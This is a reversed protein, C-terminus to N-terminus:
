LLDDDELEDLVKKDLTDIPQEIDKKVPAAKGEEVDSPTVKDAKDSASDWNHLQRRWAKVLGSFARKSMKRNIDPTFPHQGRKRKCRPVKELYTQYAVTNKGFNIQKLRQELRRPDTEIGETSKRKGLAITIGVINEAKYLV